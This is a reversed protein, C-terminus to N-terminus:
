LDKRPPPPTTKYAVEKERFLVKLASRDRGDNVFNNMISVHEALSSADVWPLSRYHFYFKGMTRMTSDFSSVDYRHKRSMGRSGNTYRDMAAKPSRRGQHELFPMDVSVTEGMTVHSYQVSKIRQPWPYKATLYSVNPTLKYAVICREDHKFWRCTNRIDSYDPYPDNEETWPDMRHRFFDLQVGEVAEFEGAEEVIQRPTKNLFFRDGMTIIIWVDEGEFDRRIRELLFHYHGRTRASRDPDDQGRFAFHEDKVLDWTGDQSLDDYVYLYDVLGRVHPLVLPLLDAEDRVCMLGVLKSM